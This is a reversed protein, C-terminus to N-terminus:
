FVFGIIFMSDELLKSANVMVILLNFYIFVHYVSYGFIAVGTAM